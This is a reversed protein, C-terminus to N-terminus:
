RDKLRQFRRLVIFAESESDWSSKVDEGFDEVIAIKYM